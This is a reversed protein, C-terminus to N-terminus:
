ILCNKIGSIMVGFMQQFRIMEIPDKFSIVLEPKTSLNYIEEPKETFIVKWEDKNFLFEVIPRISEASHWYDGVLLFVSKM